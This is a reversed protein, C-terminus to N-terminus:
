KIKKKIKNNKTFYLSFNNISNLINLHTFFYIFSYKKNIIYFLILFLIILLCTYLINFDNDNNNNYYKTFTTFPEQKISKYSNIKDTWYKLLLKDYNFTVNKYKEITNDLLEQTIDNWDNVILVPLDDFLEDIGSSYVIPICGLILAEWTRHCDLGNGPPSIVFAYETQNQWCVLVNQNEEEKFILENKIQHLADIRNQKYYYWFIPETFNVYCKHIRESFPKQNKKIEILKAEKELKIVNSHHNSHYDLGIALKSIKPHSVTCNQCFWHIIKDNEIFKLFDDYNNSFTRNYNDEDSDGSVLVFNCKIDDIKDAFNKISTNCVYVSCNNYIKTIDPINTTSSELPDCRVDCSKAIGISGVYICDKEDKETM